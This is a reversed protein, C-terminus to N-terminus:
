LWTRTVDALRPPRGLRQELRAAQALLLEGCAVADTLASHAPYRPLRHRARCADLRLAAPDADAGAGDPDPPLLRREVELTDVVQLRPARGHARRCAARLFGTEVQAFHALLVRRRGDPAVLARLVEPLVAELPPAGALADDTLGHVVASGGVEGRPRVRLHRAGGLHVELGVLPVLGVSLVEHRDPDLGTTELDLALLELDALPTGRPWRPASALDALPGAPLPGRLLDGLAGM